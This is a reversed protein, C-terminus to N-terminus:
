SRSGLPPPVTPRPRGTGCNPCRLEGQHPTDFPIEVTFSAGCEPCDDRLSHRQAKKVEPRYRVVQNRGQVKAAGAAAEVMGMVARETLVEEGGDTSTMWGISVTCKMEGSQTAVRIGAIEERIQDISRGIHSEAEPSAYNGFLYFEDGHARVPLTGSVYDEFSRLRNAIKQLLGDAVAYTFKDNIRKFHDVEVLACWFPTDSEIAGKLAESM